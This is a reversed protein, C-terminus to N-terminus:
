LFSANECSGISRIVIDDANSCYRNCQRGIRFEADYYRHWISLIYCTLKAHPVAVYLYRTVTNSQMAVWCVIISRYVWPCMKNSLIIYLTQFETLLLQLDEHRSDSIMVYFQLLILLFNGTRRWLQRGRVPLGTPIELM